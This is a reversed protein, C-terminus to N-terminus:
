GVEVAPAVQAEQERLRKEAQIRRWVADNNWRVLRKQRGRRKYFKLKLVFALYLHIQEISNGAEHWALLQKMLAREVEDPVLEWQGSGERRVWEFGSGWELGGVAAEVM